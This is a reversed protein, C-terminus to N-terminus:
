TPAERCRSCCTRARAHLAFCVATFAILSVSEGHCRVLLTWASTALRFGLGSCRSPHTPSIAREVHNCSPCCSVARRAAPIQSFEELTAARKLAEIAAVSLLGWFNAALDQWIGGM